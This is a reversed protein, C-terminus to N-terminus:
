REGRRTLGPCVKLGTRALPNSWNCGGDPGAVGLPGLNETWTAFVQMQGKPTILVGVRDGQVFIAVSRGPSERFIHLILNLIQTFITSANDEVM